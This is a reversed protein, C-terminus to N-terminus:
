QVDIAVTREQVRAVADSFALLNLEYLGPFLTRTVSGDLQVSFMSRGNSVADGSAVVSRTAPDLLLFQLGREGSGSVEVDIEADTGGRLSVSSPADIELSPAEGFYWDGPRFPYNEERFARLEAFQAPPDYRWLSYPGNSVVLHGRSSFWDIAAGYRDRADSGTVLSRGGIEFYGAPVTSNRQLASLSRQVLRADRDMVLSIWPVNYRSAATDSYAGRRQTFVVDDMAALLEWPMSLGSPVAYSAILNEEFHWYDV